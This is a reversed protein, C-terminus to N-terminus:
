ESKGEKTVAGRRASRAAAPGELAAGVGEVKKEGRDEM